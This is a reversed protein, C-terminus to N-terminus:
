ISSCGLIRHYEDMDCGRRLTQIHATFIWGTRVILLFSGTRALHEIWVPNNSKHITFTAERDRYMSTRHHVPVPTPLELRDELDVLMLVMSLYEFRHNRGEAAPSNARFAWPATDQSECDLRKPVQLPRNQREKLLVRENDLFAIEEAEGDNHSRHSPLLVQRPESELTQHAKGIAHIGITLLPGSINLL